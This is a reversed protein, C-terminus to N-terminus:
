GLLAIANYAPAECYCVVDGTLVVEADDDGLCMLRAAAWASEYSTCEAVLRAGAADRLHVQSPSM